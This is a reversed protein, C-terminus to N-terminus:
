HKCRFPHPKHSIYKELRNQPASIIDEPESSWFSWTTGYLEESSGPNRYTQWGLEHDLSSKTWRPGALAVFAWKRMGDNFEVGRNAV